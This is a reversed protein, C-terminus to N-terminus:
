SKNPFYEKGQWNKYSALFGEQVKKTQHFNLSAFFMWLAGLSFSEWNGVIEEYTFLRYDSHEDGVSIKPIEYLISSHLFVIGYQIGGYKESIEAKLRQGLIACLQLQKRDLSIGAEEEIERLVVAKYDIESVEFGGGPLDWRGSDNRKLFLYKGNIQIVAFSGNIM